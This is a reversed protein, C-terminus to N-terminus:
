AGLPPSPRRRGVWGATGPLARDRRYSPRGPTSPALPEGGDHSAGPRSMIGLWSWWFFVTWLTAASGFIILLYLMRWRHAGGLATLLAWFGVLGCLGGAKLLPAYGNAGYRHYEASTGTGILDGIEWKEPTTILEFLPAYRSQASTDASSQVNDVRVSVDDVNRAINPDVDERYFAVVAVIATAGAITALSQRSRPLYAALLAPTCWIGWLSFTALIGIFGTAIILDFRPNLTLRLVLLLGMSLAFDAPEQYLGTPRFTNSLARTDMGLVMVANLVTGTQYFYIQQVGLAVCHIVILWSIWRQAISTDLPLQRFAYLFPIGLIFGIGNKANEHGTDLFVGVFFYLLSLAAVGALLLLDRPTGFRSTRLRVTVVALLVFLGVLSLLDFPRVGWSLYYFDWGTLLSLISMLAITTPRTLTSSSESLRRESARQDLELQQRTVM